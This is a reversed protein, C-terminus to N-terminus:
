KNRKGSTIYSLIKEDKAYGVESVSSNGGHQPDWKINPGEKYDLGHISYGYDIIYPIPKGNERKFM